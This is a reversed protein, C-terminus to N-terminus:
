VKEIVLRFDEYARYKMLSHYSTNYKRKAHRCAERISEFEGVLRDGKYLMCPIYNRVPTQGLYEYSHNLNESRSVWELNSARNNQKNGDIHNVEPYNNENSVFAIAVLRHILCHKREGKNNFLRISMYGNSCMYPKMIRDVGTKRSVVVGEKSIFYDNFGEIGKLNKM